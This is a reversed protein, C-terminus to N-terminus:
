KQENGPTEKEMRHKNLGMEITAQLTREEFPKVIYGYSRTTKARKLTEDDTFATLYIIPIDIFGAIEEVVDIGDMKNDLKIDVLLLDPKKDRTMEVAARGTNAIGCVQWGLKELSIELDRAIIGDNEIILIRERKM